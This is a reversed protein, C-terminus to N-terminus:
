GGGLGSQIRCRTRVTERRTCLHHNTHMTCTVVNVHCAIPRTGLYTRKQAACCLNVCLFVNKSRAHHMEAVKKM